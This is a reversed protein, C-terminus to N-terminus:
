AFDDACLTQMAEVSPTGSQMLRRAQRLMAKELRNRVYRGNGFGQAATQSAEQLQKKMMDAAEEDLRYDMKEAMSQLIDFLERGSYDDFHITKSFRSRLGPNSNLFTEMQEPYGAAIVILNDRHDEMEKLLTDIAERGFDNASNKALTYAEDIFLIGGLAKKVMEKTQLATQGVFGAVLGSRDTEILQGQPLVGLEKYIRGLLRAVTTKGTGPNGTFVMHRSIEPVRLGAQQRLRSIKLMSVLDHVDEKVSHLGTMSDLEELIANLNEEQLPDAEEPATELDHIDEKWNETFAQLEPHDQAIDLYVKKLLAAYKANKPNIERLLNDAWVFDPYVTSGQKLFSTRDFGQMAESLLQAPTEDKLLLLDEIEAEAATRNEDCSLYILRALELNLADVADTDREQAIFSATGYLDYLDDKRM